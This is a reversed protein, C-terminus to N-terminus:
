YISIIKTYNTNFILSKTFTFTEQELSILAAIVRAFYIIGNSFILEFFMQNSLVEGEFLEFYLIIFTKQRM